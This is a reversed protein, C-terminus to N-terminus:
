AVSSHNTDRGHSRRRAWYAISHRFTTIAALLPVLPTLTSPYQRVLLEEATVLSYTEILQFM